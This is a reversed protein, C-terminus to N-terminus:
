SKLYTVLPGIATPSKGSPPTKLQLSLGDGTDVTAPIAVTIQTTGAADTVAGVKLGKATAGYATGGITYKEATTKSANTVTLDAFVQKGAVPNGYKDRLVVTMTVTQGATWAGSSEYSSKVADAAGSKIEQDVQADAYASSKVVIPHTGAQQIAGAKITLKGSAIKYGTGNALEQGDYTVSTVSGAFYGLSDKFAIVIDRDVDNNKAAAILAPAAFLPVQVDVSNENEDADTVTINIWKNAQVTKPKITFKGTRDAKATGITTMGDRATVTAGASTTGKILNSTGNMPDVALAVSGSAFRPDSLPSSRQGAFVKLAKFVANKTTVGNTAYVTVNYTGAPVYALVQGDSDSQTLPWEKGGQAIKVVAHNAPDGNSDKVTLDIMGAKPDTSSLFATAKPDVTVTAYRWYTKGGAAYSVGITATGKGVGTVTGDAGVTAVAANSSAFTVDSAPIVSTSNDDHGARVITAHTGGTVITYKTADLSLGALAQTSPEQLSVKRVRHNGLDTFILNGSGDIALEYPMNIEASTAPGGDGSYEATGSGAVTTIVGNTDVKRIRFNDYDSLYLNGRNDPLIRIPSMNASTAPGGDGSYKATGSGAVTTIVGNTDVKRIRHNGYDAIYLNGAGDAKVDFAYSLEASTAPGGDGSYGATGNGAVTSIVGNTDVKRIRQNNSDAFYVNGSGDLTLGVPFDIQASDAPGGDGSYGATGNGAVTSIVGSTDIKRIRANGSDSFYLNGNRDVAIDTMGSLKASVAPGNDGSYGGTGTGAVTSITGDAAVKRIRYNGQDTIYLNGSSDVAVGIPYNLAASTAPGNDGSYEAVGTGAVTSITPDGSAYAHSAGGGPLGPVYGAVILLVLMTVFIPKLHKRM